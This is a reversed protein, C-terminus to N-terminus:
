AGTTHLEQELEQISESEEAKRGGEHEKIAKIIQIENFPSLKMERVEDWFRLDDNHGFNKPTPSYVEM